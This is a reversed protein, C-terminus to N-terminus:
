HNIIKESLTAAIRFVKGKLSQNKQWLLIPLIGLVIPSKGGGIALLWLQNEKWYADLIEFNQVEHFNFAGYNASDIKLTLKGNYLQEGIKVNLQYQGLDNESISQINSNEITAILRQALAQFEGRELPANRMNSVMAISLGLEPYVLLGCTSGLTKGDGWYTLRNKWDIRQGWGLGEKTYLSDNVKSKSTIEELDDKTLYSAFFTHADGFKALDIATSLYGSGAWRGSLNIYPANEVERSKTYQYFGTRNPIIRKQHDLETSNMQLPSFVLKEMAIAYPQMTVKEIIAALITYAYSSYTVGKGPPHALPRDKFKLISETSNNYHRTDLADEIGRYHRIGSTHQAIQKITIKSWTLPISDMYKSILDDLNLSGEKHLKYIATATFLKSISAVRFKSEKNVPIGCELNSMGYENSWILKSKYYAAVALGPINSQHILANLLKDNAANSLKFSQCYISRNLGIFALSITLIYRIM